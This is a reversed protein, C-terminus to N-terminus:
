KVIDSKEKEYNLLCIGYLYIHISESKAKYYILLSMIGSM